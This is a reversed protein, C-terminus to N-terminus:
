RKLPSLNAETRLSQRHHRISDVFVGLCCALMGAALVAGLTDGDHLHLVLQAVALVALVAWAALRLPSRSRSALFDM